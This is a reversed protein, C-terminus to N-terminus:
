LALMGCFRPLSCSRETVLLGPQEAGSGHEVLFPLFM